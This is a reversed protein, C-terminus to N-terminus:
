DKSLPYYYWHPYVPNFYYGKVWRQEYHRTTPTALRIAPAWDYDVQTLQEYIKQREAPDSASVGKNVLDGFLDLLEQPLKQRHGYTGVTFPQAWNHPDHIDELWGSFFIPLRSARINSLLTPWPLGLIEVQYKPDVNALNAQLIEGITQRTRNGVNFGAQFRFGVEAVKGDWAQDLEAKCQDPDYTYHPGDQNYGLMGPIIVGVNQVAEGAYGESILTDWDFCYNFGKRVHIDSFFDPPIGNGDLAGSGIFNNGGETNIQFTFFADERSVGPAGIQLRFPGDPNDTPACDFDLTTANYECREGVLPDIQSVNERPVITFDADGAQMMAFRTGWENVSTKIIVHELAAPGVPGGEWAPGVDATRWYNDNRVMVVEEGHTWSEVSFPGTGNEVERLPTTEENVGYFNQWTACDGDWAGNEIAWAKDQVSGWTQAITALLPGWSQALHMTVTGAADDAVFADTVKQCVEMLKAPDQKQLEEPADDLAGSPDVMEAIDFVGVGLFPETLLWQPSFTGGQLLGRQFSWAVDEPTMPDGNHFTVGKRITFTYTLGDDSITWDTALQPVFESANQRNYFVLTDYTNQIIEGGATEYNWAPDLTEPDGFTAVVFTSPDASAFTVPGPQAPPVTVEVVQPTGEVIVTQVVTQPAGCAALILSLAVLAVLGVTLRKHAFM